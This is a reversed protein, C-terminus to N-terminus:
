VSLLKDVIKAEGNPSNCRPMSRGVKRNAAVPVWCLDDGEM